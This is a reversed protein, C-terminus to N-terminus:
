SFSRWGAVHAAPHSSGDTLNALRPEDEDAGSLPYTDQQPFAKIETLLFLILHLRQSNARLPKKEITLDSDSFITQLLHFRGLITPNRLAKDVVMSSKFSFYYM